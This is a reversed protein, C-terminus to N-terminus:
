RGRGPFAVDRFRGRLKGLREALGKMEADLDAPGGVSWVPRVLGDWGIALRGAEGDRAPLLFAHTKVLGGDGVELARYECGRPDYVGQEFLLRTATALFKPLKTAPSTWSKGQMPPEPVVKGEFRPAQRFQGAADPAVALWSLLLASAYRLRRPPTARDM